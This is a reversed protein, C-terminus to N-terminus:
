IRNVFPKLKEYLSDYPRNFFVNRNYKLIEMDRNYYNILTEMDLNRIKELSQLFGEFREKGSEIDDYSYDIWDPFQFGFYNKLDKILGCYGFPLIFHGKILPDYCKETSARVGASYCVSEVFVSVFSQQYYRNHPPAWWFKQQINLNSDDVEEQPDLTRPPDQLFDSYYSDEPNLHKSLEHRFFLRDVYCDHEIIYPLQSTIIKNPALFKKLEGSTNLAIDELEYMKKTAIGSWLKGRLDFKDYETFYCKERNFMIDYFITDDSFHESPISSSLYKVNLEYPLRSSIYKLRESFIHSDMHENDYCHTHGTLIILKDKLSYNLYVLTEISSVKQVCIVDAEEFKNTKVFHEPELDFPLFATIGLFAMAEPYITTDNEHLYVKLM